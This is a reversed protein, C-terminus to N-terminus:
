VFKNFIEFLRKCCLGMDFHEEAFKAANLSFKKRLSDNNALYLIADAISEADAKVIAGNVNPIVITKTEDVDTAITPLGAAIAERLSLSPFNAIPSTALFIDASWLFRRVDLQKGFFVVRDSLGNDKM